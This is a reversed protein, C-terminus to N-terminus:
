KLDTNFRCLCVSTIVGWRLASPQRKESGEKRLDEARSRVVGGRVEFRGAVVDLVDVLAHRPSVKVKLVHLAFLVVHEPLVLLSFVPHTHRPSLDFSPAPCFPAILPCVTM